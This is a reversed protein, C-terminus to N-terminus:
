FVYFVSVWRMQYISGGFVVGLVNLVCLFCVGLVDTLYIRWVGGWACEFCMSFLCGVCRNFLDELCWGLCM